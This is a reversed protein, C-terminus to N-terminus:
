IPPSGESSAGHSNLALMSEGLDEPCAESWRCGGGLGYGAVTSGDGTSLLPVVWVSWVSTSWITSSWPSCAPSVGGCISSSACSSWALSSPMLSMLDGAVSSM